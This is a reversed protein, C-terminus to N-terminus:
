KAELLKKLETEVGAAGKEGNIDILRIVGERDILVLQPTGNVIYSDYAKLAEQKPLSWLQYELKHHKAFATFLTQDSARDAQKASSVGGTKPDFALRQGIEHTYFSVGVIVLGAGKHAKHWEALKPLLAISSSARLDWFNLLVVKGKLDSLKGAKGNIAFDSAFDPAPKGIMQSHGTSTKQVAGSTKATLVYSGKAEAGFSTCVLKYEGDKTCNFIIRSNLNGGSDDDEELQNGKPDLLRLYSDFDTSVMDIVYVKGADMKFTHLQSPGKRQADRPDDKSFTGKVQFPKEMEKVKQAGAHALTFVAPLFALSALALVRFM